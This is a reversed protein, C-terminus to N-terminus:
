LADATGAARASGVRYVFKGDPGVQKILKLEKIDRSVTAQTVEYGRDGLKLLLEDQTAIPEEAILELITNQRDKRANM